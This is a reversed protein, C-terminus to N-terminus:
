AISRAWVMHVDPLKQDNGEGNSLRNEYFGHRAYFRRARANAQYTWLELRSHRSKAHDLLLRGIGLGRMATALYLSQVAGNNLAIFGIARRRHRAVTVETRDLLLRADDRHPDPTDPAPIWATEAAWGGLIRAIPQVDRRTAPGLTVNV